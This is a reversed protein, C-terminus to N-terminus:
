AAGVNERSSFFRILSWDNRPAFSGCYGAAPASSPERAPAPSPERAPASSPERARPRPGPRPAPRPGCLM